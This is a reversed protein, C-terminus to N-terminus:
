RLVARCSPMVMLLIAPSASAENGTSFARMRLTHYKTADPIHAETPKPQAISVCTCKLTVKIM